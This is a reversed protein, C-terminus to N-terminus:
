TSTFLFSINCAEHKDETKRKPPRGIISPAKGKSGYKWRGAATAQVPIQRGRRVSGGQICTTTSSQSGFCHFASSLLATSQMSAM